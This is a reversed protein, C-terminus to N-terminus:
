HRMIENSAWQTRYFSNFVGSHSNSSISCVFPFYINYDYDSDGAPEAPFLEHFVRAPTFGVRV